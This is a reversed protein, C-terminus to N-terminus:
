AKAKILVQLTQHAAEFEFRKIQQSLVECSSGLAACLQPAQQEFFSLASADGLVLLADMEALLALQSQPDLPPAVPTPALQPKIPLAATLQTFELKVADMDARFSADALVEAQHLRFAKEMREAVLAMHELGLTASSGKLTHILLRAQILDAKSLSLGLQSMDAAHVDVFQILLSLYKETNGRLMALGYSLNLGPLIDLRSLANEMDLGLVPPPITTAVPSSTVVGQSAVPREQPASLWKLLTSFLLSPNVPKAVFDSMGVAECARRDEEFANATMAVIPIRSWGPLARIALTADLGDMNPMQLDMLVLDYTLNKVKQLAELGDSATDVLLGAGTLLETAVEMNILNDEVLLIRNGHHNTLLQNEADTLESGLLPPIAGRGHKLTVTLWFTSGVGQKSEVGVAGGMLKALRRTITLGLGTGGYKRTTSDDIQEFAEFLRGLKQPAIGIGTDQVEFRVQLVDDQDQELRARLNIEGRDTFKIANGVYNILAQRLRMPDGRLWVPVADADVSITLGKLKAAEGFISAVNDLISSLHFDLEELTLRNAEIKSIDLIDNIISLLHRGASDVQDLRAIQQPSAGDRRLLYNLGIIANLPTRIEHSMNALFASKALNAANAADRAQTLEASRQKVLEELHERHQKLDAQDALRDLAQNIDRNLEVLLGQAEENFAKDVKDYLNFTGVVESRRVLPLAAASQWGSHQAQEGWQAYKPNSFIDQCWLVRNELVATVTPRQSSEDRPDLSIPLRSLYGSDEGFSAVPIVRQAVRDVRGVWAMAFGGFQVASRCLDQFLATDNSSHAIAQNCQGLAAYLQTLRQIRAQAAQRARIDRLYVLTSPQGLYNVPVSSAELRVPEGNLSLMTDEALASSLGSAFRASVSKGLLDAPQMGGLLQVCAANVYVFCDGTQVYIGEPAHDLLARYQQEDKTKPM